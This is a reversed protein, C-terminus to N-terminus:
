KEPYKLTRTITMVYELWVIRGDDVQIPFWAFRKVWKIDRQYLPYQGNEKYSLIM